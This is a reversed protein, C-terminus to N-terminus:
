HYFAFCVFVQVFFQIECELPVFKVGSSVLLRLPADCYDRPNM